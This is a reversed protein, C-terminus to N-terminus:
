GQADDLGCEAFQSSLVNARMTRGLEGVPVQLSALTIWSHQLLDVNIPLVLNSLNVM